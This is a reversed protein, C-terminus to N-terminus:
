SNVFSHLRRAVDFPKIDPRGLTTISHSQIKVHLLIPGERDLLITMNKIFADVSACSIADIYNISQALKTFDITKSATVQGGTSEYSGNDLIVHILNTVKIAGITTLNGLHMIAAGDGDIVIVKTKNRLSLALGTAVANAYGMSGVCYFHNNRDSLTYLERGTKGTTAIIPCNLPIHNVLASLIQTRTPFSIIKRPLAESVLKDAKNQEEVEKDLYFSNREILLAYPRNSISMKNIALDLCEIVENTNKPLLAWDIKLLDLLQTTIAGMLNHQPEDKEGPKGRWTILLLVPIAFPENLSTLPNVMNGLGSNQCMVVCRKGGLWMGSAIALAEGESSATYYSINQAQLIYDFMANMYSCPVGSFSSLRRKVLEDVFYKACIM